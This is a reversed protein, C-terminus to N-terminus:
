NRCAQNRAPSQDFHMIGDAIEVIATLGKQYKFGEHNSNPKVRMTESMFEPNRSEPRSWRPSPSRRGYEPAQFRQRQGDETSREVEVRSSRKSDQISSITPQESISKVQQPPKQIDAAQRKMLENTTNISGVLFSPLTDTGTSTNMESPKALRVM